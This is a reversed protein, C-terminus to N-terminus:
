QQDGRDNKGGYVLAEFLVSTVGNAVHVIIFQDRFGLSISKMQQGLQLILEELELQM